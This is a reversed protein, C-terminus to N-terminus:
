AQIETKDTTDTGYKKSRRRKTNVAEEKKIKKESKKKKKKNKKNNKTEAIPDMHFNIKKRIPVDYELILAWTEMPMTEVYFGKYVEIMGNVVKNFEDLLGDPRSDPAASSTPVNLSGHKSSSIALYRYIEEDPTRHCYQNLMWDVDNM